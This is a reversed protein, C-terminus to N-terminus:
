ALVELYLKRADEATVTRKNNVLLRQVDMGAKVLDDLDKKEVGFSGLDTPIDLKRLLEELMEIFRRAKEEETLGAGMGARDCIQAFEKECAQQNFRMVPLLMIANSIGHAIHYKGGLPYALAHVATTGSATIAVGGYFAALLMNSKAETAEPDDCARLLNAFILRAAEMAFTNSFPNAKKSTYCEVAHALADIGTAAAIGRPLKKIMTGDLIVADPIMQPNVIGIKNELEPVAVISNPTAEAGTGATTPIMLTSVQKRGLLPDKLLDRVTYQDTASVSALKAIDMVSGGGVAVILDSGTERFREVIKQAEDCTPETALNDLIEVEMGAKKLLSVPYDALGARCIGPDTFLAAKRHGTGIDAIKNITGEGCYVTGPMSLQYQM